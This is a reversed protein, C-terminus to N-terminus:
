REPIPETREGKAAGPIRSPRAERRATAMSQELGAPTGARRGFLVRGTIQRSTVFSRERSARAVM